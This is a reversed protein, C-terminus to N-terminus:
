VLAFRVGNKNPQERTKKLVYCGTLQDLGTPGFASTVVFAETCM